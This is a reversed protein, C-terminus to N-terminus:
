VPRATKTTQLGAMNLRAARNELVSFAFHNLHVDKPLAIGQFRYLPLDNHLIQHAVPITCRRGVFSTDGVMPGKSIDVHDGVKYVTLRGREDAINPIQETKYPNEEFMALAVDTHVTLRQFPLEQEALRHIQASIVMLEEKTPNWSHPETLGLDLDAVFSGSAVNPAPFSHMQIPMDDRFALDIAAGLLFSCSRFFARNAQIPDEMHFHLLEVSCDDELPRHMDWIEGHPKDETKVLALCSRQMLMESMHQAVNYPTSLNRNMILMATEPPGEYQVEIKELRPILKAQRKQEAEFMRSRKLRIEQNSGQPTHSIHRAVQTVTRSVQFVLPSHRQQLRELGVLGQLLSKAM